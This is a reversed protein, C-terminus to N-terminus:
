LEKVINNREKIKVTKLEIKYKRSETTMKDFNVGNKHLSYIIHRAKHYKNTVKLCQYDCDELISNNSKKIYTKQKFQPFTVLAPEILIQQLEKHIEDLTLCHIKIVLDNVRGKDINREYESSKDINWKDPKIRSQRVEQTNIPVTIINCTTSFKLEAHTATPTM